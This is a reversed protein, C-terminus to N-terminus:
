QARGERAHRLEAILERMAHLLERGLELAEDLKAGFM